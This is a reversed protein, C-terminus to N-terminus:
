DSVPKYTYLMFVARWLHTYKHMIFGVDSTAGEAIVYIVSQSTHICCSYLEGYTHPLLYKHM